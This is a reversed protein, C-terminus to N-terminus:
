LPLADLRQAEYVIQSSSIGLRELRAGGERGGGPTWRKEDDNAHYCTPTWLPGQCRGLRKTTRTGPPLPHKIFPRRMSDRRINDFIM